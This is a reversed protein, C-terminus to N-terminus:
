RGSFYLTKRASAPDSFLFLSIASSSSPSHTFGLKCLQIQVGAFIDKPVFVISVVGEQLGVDLLLRAIANAIAGDSKSADESPRIRIAGQYSRPLNISHYRRCGIARNEHYWLDEYALAKQIGNNLRPALRYEISLKNLPRLKSTQYNLFNDRISVKITITWDYRRDMEYDSAIDFEEVSAGFVHNPAVFLLLILSCCWPLVNRMTSPNKQFRIADM